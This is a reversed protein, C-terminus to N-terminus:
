SEHYGGFKVLSDFCKKAVDYPNQEWLKQNFLELSYFGSYGQKELKRMIKKLPIIGEGPLVRNKDTLIERHKNEVDNIHVLFVNKGNLSNIDEFKSIGAYFHFTDFLIGTNSSNIKRLIEVATSVCGIFKSKALFELALKVGYKEAIDNAEKLNKAAGDYTDDKLQAPSDSPVVLVPIELFRCIELKEYFEEMVKKREDGAAFMLGAQYCAGIAKIKQKKLLNKVKILSNKGLYEKLKPVWIEVADFGAKGYARIDTEFDTYMTTAQNISFKM